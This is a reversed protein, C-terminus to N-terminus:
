HLYGWKESNELRYWFLPWYRRGAPVESYASGDKEVAVTGLVRELLFTGLLM